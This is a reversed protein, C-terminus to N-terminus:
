ESELIESPSAFVVPGTLPSGRFHSEGCRICDLYSAMSRLSVSATGAVDQWTVGSPTPEDGALIALHSLIDQTMREAVEHRNM